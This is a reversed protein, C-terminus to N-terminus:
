KLCSGDREDLNQSLLEFIAAMNPQEQNLEALVKTRVSVQEMATFRILSSVYDTCVLKKQAEYAMPNKEDLILFYIPDHESAVVSILQLGTGRGASELSKQMWESDSSDFYWKEETFFSKGKILVPHKQRVYEEQISKIKLLNVQNHRRVLASIKQTQRDREQDLLKQWQNSQVAQDSRGDQSSQDAKNLAESAAMAPCFAGAIFIIALLGFFSKM